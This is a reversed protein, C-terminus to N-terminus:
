AALPTYEKYSSILKDLHVPDNKFNEANDIERPNSNIMMNNLENLFDNNENHLVNKTYKM